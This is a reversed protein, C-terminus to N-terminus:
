AASISKTRLAVPRCIRGVVTRARRAAAPEAEGASMRRGVKRAVRREVRRPAARTQKVARGRRLFFLRGAHFVEGKEEGEEEDGEEGKGEHPADAEIVAEGLADFAGDGEEDGDEGVEHGHEDQGFEKFM